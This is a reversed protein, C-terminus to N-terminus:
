CMSFPGARRTTDARWSLVLGYLLRADVDRPTEALRAELRILAEDRHGSTAEARAKVLVDDQGSAARAVASVIFAVLLRTRQGEFVRRKM